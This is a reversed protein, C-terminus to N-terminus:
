PRHRLRKRPREGCIESHLRAWERKNRWEHPTRCAKTIASIQAVFGRAVLLPFEEYCKM